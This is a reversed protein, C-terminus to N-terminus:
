CLLQAMVPVLRPLRTALLQALLQVLLPMLLQVRPPAGCNCAAGAGTGHGDGAVWVVLGSRARNRLVAQLLAWVLTAIAAMTVVAMCIRGARIQGVDRSFYYFIPHIAVLFPHVVVPKKM